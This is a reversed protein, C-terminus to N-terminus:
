RYSQIKGISLCSFVTVFEFRGWIEFRKDSLELIMGDKGVFLRFSEHQCFIRHLCLYHSSSHDHETCCTKNDGGYLIVSLVFSKAM